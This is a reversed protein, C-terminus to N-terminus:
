HDASWLRNDAVPPANVGNANARNACHKGPPRLHPQLRHHLIDSMPFVNLIQPPKKLGSFCRPCAREWM